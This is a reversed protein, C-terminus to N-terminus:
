EVILRVDLTGIEIVVITYIIVVVLDAVRSLTSYIGSQIARESM